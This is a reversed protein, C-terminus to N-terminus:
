RGCCRCPGPEAPVAPPAAAGRPLRRRRVTRSTGRRRDDGSRPQPRSAGRGGARQRSVGKRKPSAAEPRSAPRPAPPRLRLTNGGGGACVCMSRWPLGDGREFGASALRERRRDGGVDGCFGPDGGAVRGGAPGGGAAVRCAFFLALPNRKEEADDGAEEREDRRTARDGDDDEDGNDRTRRPKNERDKGDSRKELEHERRAGGPRQPSYVAATSVPEAESRHPTGCAAEGGRGSALAPPTGGGTTVRTGGCVLAANGTTARGAAPRERHSDTALGPYLDPVPKVGSRPWCRAEGWPLALTWGGLGLLPDSTPLCLKEVDHILVGAPQLGLVFRPSRWPFDRVSTRTPRGHRRDFRGEATVLPGPIFALCAPPRRGCAAGGSTQTRGTVLPRGAQEFRRQTNKM